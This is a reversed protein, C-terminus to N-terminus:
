CTILQGLFEKVLGRKLENHCYQNRYNRLCNYCSTEEGCRSCNVKDISKDLLLRLGNKNEIIRKVHGAGGPVDDFLIIAPKTPDGEYPYLCGDLDDRSIELSESAGELLAYLLSLWFARDPNSYGKFKLDM